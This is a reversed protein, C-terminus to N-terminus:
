FSGKGPYPDHTPGPVTVLKNGIADAVQLTSPNMLGTPDVQSMDGGALQMGNELPDGLQYTLSDVSSGGEVAVVGLRKNYPPIKPM